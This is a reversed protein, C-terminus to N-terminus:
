NRGNRLWDLWCEMALIQPTVWVTLLTRDLVNVCCSKTLNFVSIYAKIKVAYGFLLSVFYMGAVETRFKLLSALPSQHDIIM